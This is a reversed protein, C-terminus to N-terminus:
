HNSPPNSDPDTSRIERLKELYFDWGVICNVNKALVNVLIVECLTMRTKLCEIQEKQRSIVEQDADRCRKVWHLENDLHQIHSDQNKRRRFFTM